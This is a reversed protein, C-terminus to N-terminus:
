VTKGQLSPLYSDLVSAVWHQDVTDSLIVSSPIKQFQDSGLLVTAPRETKAEAYHASPCSRTPGVMVRQSLYVAYKWWHPVMVSWTLLSETRAENEACAARPDVEETSASLRLSDMCSCLKKITDSTLPIWSLCISRTSTRPNRNISDVMSRPRTVRTTTRRWRRQYSSGKHLFVWNFIQAGSLFSHKFVETIVTQNPLSPYVGNHLKVRDKEESQERWGLERRKLGVRSPVVRVKDESGSGVVVPASEPGLSPNM